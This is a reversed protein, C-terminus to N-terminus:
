SGVPHLHILKNRREPIGLLARGLANNCPTCRAGSRRARCSIRRTIAAIVLISRTPSASRKASVWRTSGNPITLARLAGPLHRPWGRYFALTAADHDAAPRPLLIIFLGNAFGAIAGIV